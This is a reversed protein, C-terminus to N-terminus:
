LVVHVFFYHTVLYTFIIHFVEFQYLYSRFVALNEQFELYHWWIQHDM